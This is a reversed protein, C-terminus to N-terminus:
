GYLGGQGQARLKALAAAETEIIEEATVGLKAAAEQPTCPLGGELAFRLKLVQVELPELSSLMDAVRQRSQFYATDEVAQDEEEPINQQPKVTQELQQATRLMDEYVEAEEATIGMQVAIEERTPNRGLKILLERDTRRYNELAVRMKNGIGSERAQLTVARALYQRIWWDLHSYIDGERYQTIGQWLGMSAEQILDMLLVGRGTMTEAQAIARSITLDVLHGVKSTDGAACERAIVQPDGAAPIAAIEQLYLRLPDNEELEQLYRGHQVLMEERRLRTETSGTGYDKPLSSVDLGVGKQELMTFADEVAADEERELLTLLQMASVTQGPRMREIMIEWPAKEFSFDMNNM